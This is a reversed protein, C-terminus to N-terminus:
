LEHLKNIEVYENLTLTSPKFDAVLSLFYDLRDWLQYENIEWSHGWIHFVGNKKMCQELLVM